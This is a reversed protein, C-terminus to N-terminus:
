NRLKFCVSGLNKFPLTYKQLINKYIVACLMWTLKERSQNKWGTNLRSTTPLGGRLGTIDLLDQPDGTLPWFTEGDWLTPLKHVKHPLPVNSELSIWNERKEFYGQVVCLTMWQIQDPFESNQTCNKGNKSSCSSIIINPIICVNTDAYPWMISEYVTDNWWYLISSHQTLSYPISKVGHGQRDTHMPANQPRSFIM